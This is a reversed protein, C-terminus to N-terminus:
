LEKITMNKTDIIYNIDKGFGTNLCTTKGIKEIGKAEHVHSGIFIEPQLETVMWKAITSGIHKGHASSQPNNIKDLKTKYPSNHTLIITPKTKDRKEYIQTIKQKLKADIQTLKKREKENLAAQVEKTFEPHFTRGLGFINIHPLKKLKLHINEVNEFDKLNQDLEEYFLKYIMEYQEFLTDEKEKTTPKGDWNGAVWYVRKGQKNLWELVKKGGLLRKQEIQALEEKPLTEIMYKFASKKYGKKIEEFWQSIYKRHYKDECVDGPSLIIDFDKTKIQPIQGHLDAVILIKM